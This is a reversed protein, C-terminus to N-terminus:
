GSYYRVREISSVAQCDACDLTQNFRPDRIAECRNCQWVGEIPQRKDAAPRAKPPVSGSLKLTAARGTNACQMANPAVHTKYAHRVAPAMYCEIVAPAAAIVPEPKPAPREERATSAISPM